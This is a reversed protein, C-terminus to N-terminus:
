IVVEDFEITEDDTLIVTFAIHIGDKGYETIVIDTVDSIRDDYIIAERVLRPIEVNILDNTVNQGILDRIEEGYDDDYILYRNRATMLAKIVYQRVAETEDIFGRIRGSEFDIAWTKSPESTVVASEEVEEAELEEGLIVDLNIPTLAM